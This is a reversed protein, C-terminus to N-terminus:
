EKKASRRKCNYWYTLAGKPTLSAGEVFAAVILYKPEDKILVYIARAADAKSKGDRILFAGKEIASRVHQQNLDTRTPGAARETATPTPKATTLHEAIDIPKEAAITSVPEVPHGVATVSQSAPKTRASKKSVSKKAPMAMYSRWLERVYRNARTPAFTEFGAIDEFVGLAAEAFDEFALGSGFNESIHQVLETVQM